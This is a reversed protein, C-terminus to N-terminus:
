EQRIFKQDLIASLCLKLHKAEFGDFGDVALWRYIDREKVDHDMTNCRLWVNLLHTWESEDQPIKLFNKRKIGKSLLQLLQDKVCDDQHMSLANPIHLWEAVQQLVKEVSTTRNNRGKWGGFM